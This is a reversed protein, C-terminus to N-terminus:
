GVATPQVGVPRADMRRAATVLLDTAAERGVLSTNVTLHYLSPDAWDIGHFRRLYQATARDREGIVTLAAERTLGEAQTVEHIRDELRAIIRVHLADAADRLIAQGGRGVVVVQGHARLARITSRVFSAAMEEDVDQVLRTKEGRTTTGVTTATAVRTSRRLLADIFGRVRYNDESFDVVETDSVGQERAVQAMLTKDFHRYGLLECLRRAIQDGGSGVERSITIVAM